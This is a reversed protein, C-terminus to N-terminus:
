RQKVQFVEQRALLEEDVLRLALRVDSRAEPSSAEGMVERLVDRRALIAEKSSGELWAIFGKITEKDM